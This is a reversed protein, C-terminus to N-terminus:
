LGNTHFSLAEHLPAIQRGLDFGTELPDGAVRAAFELEAAIGLLSGATRARLAGFSARRRRTLRDHLAPSICRTARGPERDPHSTPTDEFAAKLSRGLLGLPRGASRATALM